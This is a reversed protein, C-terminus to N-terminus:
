PHIRDPTEGKLAQDLDEHGDVEQIVQVLVVERQHDRIPGGFDTTDRRHRTMGSLTLAQLVCDVAQAMFKEEENPVLEPAFRSLENFKHKYELVSM